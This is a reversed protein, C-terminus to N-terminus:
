VPRLVVVVNSAYHGTAPDYDECTVLVLRPQGDQRFLAHARRALETKSIVEKSTVEYRCGSLSGRSGVPIDELDDFTGGGTHVTHGALLTTGQKACAPRGWWGLVTPDPPPVLEEGTLLLAVVPADYHWLRLHEPQRPRVTTGSSSPKVTGLPPPQTVAVARSHPVPATSSPPETVVWGTVAVASIAAGIVLLGILLRRM